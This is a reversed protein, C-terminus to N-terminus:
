KSKKMQFYLKEMYESPNNLYEYNLVDLIYNYNYLTDPEEIDYKHLIKCVKWALSNELMDRNTIKYLKVMDECMPLYFTSNTYVRKEQFYYRIHLELVRVVDILTNDAWLEVNFWSYFDDYTLNNIKCFQWYEEYLGTDHLLQNYTSLENINCRKETPEFRVLKFKHNNLYYYNDESLVENTYAKPRKWNLSDDLYLSFRELIPLNEGRKRAFLEEIIPIACQKDRDTNKGSNRSYIRNAHITSIKKRKTGDKKDIYTETKVCDDFLYYPLDFNNPTIVIVDITKRNYKIKRIEINPVVTMYNLLIGVIAEAKLINSSKSMDYFHKKHTMSNESVGIFIYREKHNTLSNALSVIDIVMDFNRTKETYWESKFDVYDNETSYKIIDLLNDTM